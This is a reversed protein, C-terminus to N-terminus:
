TPNMSVDIFVQKRAAGKFVIPRNAPCSGKLRCPRIGRVECLLLWPIKGSKNIKKKRGKIDDLQIFFGSFFRHWWARLGSQSGSVKERTGDSGPLDHHEIKTEQAVRNM